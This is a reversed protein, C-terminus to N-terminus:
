VGHQNPRIVQTDRMHKMIASLTIPEMVKGPVLTVSVFRYNGPDKMWGKKDTSTM